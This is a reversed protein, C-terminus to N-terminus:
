IQKNTVMYCLSNGIEYTVKLGDWTAVKLRM